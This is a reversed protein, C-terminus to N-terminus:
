QALGGSYSRIISWVLGNGSRHAVGVNPTYSYLAATAQNAPTVSFGDVTTKTKLAQWQDSRPSYYLSSFTSAACDIQKEVGAWRSQCDQGDFCGCGMLKDLKADSPQVTKSVATQEIQMRSLLLIPNIDYVRPTDVIIEAMLREDKVYSAMWSGKSELFVQIQSATVSGFNSYFNDDVINNKDFTSNVTDARDSDYDPSDDADECAPGGVVMGLVVACRVLAM